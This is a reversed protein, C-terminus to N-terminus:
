KDHLHEREPVAEDRIPNMGAAKAVVSVRRRETRQDVVFDDLRARVLLVFAEGLSDPERPAFTNQRSRLRGVCQPGHSMLRRGGSFGTVTADAPEAEGP